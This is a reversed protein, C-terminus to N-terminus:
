NTDEDYYIHYMYNLSKSNGISISTDYIIYLYTTDAYYYQLEYGFLETHTKVNWDKYYEEQTPDYPDVINGTVSCLPKYGLNHQIQLTQTAVGANKTLIGTGKAFLKLTPYQSDLIRDKISGSIADKQTKSTRAGYLNPM